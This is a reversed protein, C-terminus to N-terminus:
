SKLLDGHEHVNGLVEVPYYPDLPIYVTNGAEALRVRDEATFRPAEYEVAGWYLNGYLEGRVIDGEWIEVGNKDKLGTWRMVPCIDLVGPKPNGETWGDHEDNVWAWGFSNGAGYWLSGGQNWCLSQVIVMNRGDFARFKFPCPYNM